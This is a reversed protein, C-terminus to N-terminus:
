RPNCGSFMMIVRAIPHLNQIALDLLPGESVAGPSSMPVVAYMVGSCARPVRIEQNVPWNESPRIRNSIAM